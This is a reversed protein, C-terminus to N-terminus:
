QRGRTVPPYVFRSTLHAESPQYLRLALYFGDDPPAPLWNVGPGPDQAQIVISLGGDPDYRLGPTRDGVSHRGIPNDVLLCHRRSYLTISWFADVQPLGGPPFRLVYSQHGHLANGEADEEAMIYMAEEIGLMGIWNRAVRARTLYDTGFSHRVKLATTWGGGLESVQVSSRLDSYVTDLARQLDTHCPPWDLLPTQPPNRELMTDLIRLYERADPTDVQQESLLADIRQLASQGDLRRIHFENQLTHVRELDDPDADVLIRGIIWVDQSPSAIVHAGAPTEGNFDPGHVFLQQAKGGTTRRGAYAWPNTWADLFGLVWYRSGMEPVDIILPGTSLDLWANTFLTDNNPTVVEKDSPSRLRRTHTFQNVWRMSSDRTQGAFGREPHRRPTNAARMRAMEFLPLTQVVQQELQHWDKTTESRTLLVADLGMVGQRKAYVMLPNIEVSELTCGAALAFESVNVVAQALAQVDALPAGRFGRLMAAGKLENIMGYAQDLSVPALRLAVDELLEAQVGGMGLMIVCGLQPDYRAGLIMEVGRPYMPALLVGQVQEHQGAQRLNNAITDYAQMLEVDTKINLQVGGVDSKHMISSSLVKMVLPYGLNEAEQLAAEQTSATRNKSMPVGAAQLIRVAAAEDYEQHVLSRGGEILEAEPVAPALASKLFFDMATLVRIARSPDSFWLCGQKELARQQEVGALTSFVILRGPYDRRWAKALELQRAQMDPNMGFASLFVLLMGYEGQELMTRAAMDLLTPDATVQGTVDVPNHTAAFPISSKIHEQAQRPMPTVQLGARAADDAMMVGVGGSVTLLALQANDPLGAVALGHAIDFFEEVSYARWVGYHKFMADWVADEGALAATHSAATLAGLETRGVKVIVVHKGAARAKALAKRLALGDRCGEIYVMIITTKADDAMWAICDAVSIDSENGTTIWSSLGVGRERAMAYAYAGFAGSQCVMGIEGHPALGLGLVPTFTAYVGCSQNMFGLCNPGLIRIGAAKARRHMARQLQEGAWGLEAFGASFIVINSVGAQIADSLASLVRHAPIAFIALDVPVGIASLSPYSRLGAVKEARPNVPYIEGQYGHELLYQIPVAGIKKPNSSGGVVAIAAPALFSDLSSVDM